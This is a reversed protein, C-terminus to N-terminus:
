LALQSSTRTVARGVRPWLRSELRVKVNRPVVPSAAGGSSGAKAARRAPFYGGRTGAVVIVVAVSLFTLPDAEPGSMELDAVRVPRGGGGVPGPHAVWSLAIGLAVGAGVLGAVERAVLRVVQASRAGLAMRIGLERSRRSVAFAVVAHLGLSALGLGALSLGGLAAAAAKM